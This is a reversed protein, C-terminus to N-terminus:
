SGGAVSHWDVVIQRMSQPHRASRPLFMLIERRVASRAQRRSSLHPQSSPHPQIGMGHALYGGINSFLVRSGLGLAPQAWDTPGAWWRCSSAVGRSYGRIVSQHSERGRAAASRSPNMWSRWAHEPRFRGRESERQRHGKHFSRGGLGATM